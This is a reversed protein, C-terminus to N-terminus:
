RRPGNHCFLIQGCELVVNGRGGLEGGLGVVVEELVTDARLPFVRLVLVTAAPGVGELLALGIVVDPQVDQETGNALLELIVVVVLDHTDDDVDALGEVTNTEPSAAGACLGVGGLSALRLAGRLLRLSDEHLDAVAELLNELDCVLLGDFEHAVGVRGVGTGGTSLGLVRDLCFFDKLRRTSNANGASEPAFLGEFPTCPTTVKRRSWVPRRLVRVCCSM